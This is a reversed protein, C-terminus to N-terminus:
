LESSEKFTKLFIETAEPKVVLKFFWMEELTVWNNYHKLITWTEEPKVIELYVEACYLFIYLVILSSLPPASM